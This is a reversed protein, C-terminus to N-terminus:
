KSNIMLNNIFELTETIVVRKLEKLIMNDNETYSFEEIFEDSTYCRMNETKFNKTVEYYNCSNDIESDFVLSGKTDFPDINLFLKVETIHKQKNVKIFKYFEQALSATVKDSLLKITNNYNSENIESNDILEIIQYKM